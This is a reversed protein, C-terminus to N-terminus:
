GVREYITGSVNKQEQMGYFRGKGNGFYFLVDLCRGTEHPSDAKLHVSEELHNLAKLADECKKKDTHPLTGFTSVINQIAHEVDLWADGTERTRFTEVLKQIREVQKEDVNAAVAM